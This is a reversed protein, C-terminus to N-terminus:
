SFTAFLDCHAASARLIVNIEAPSTPGGPWTAQTSGGGIIAGSADTCDASVYVARGSPVTGALTGTVKGYTSGQCGSGCAFAVASTTITARTGPEWSTVELKVDTTQARNCTDTCNAAVALTEGPALSVLPGELPLVQGNGATVSFHTKVGVAVHHAAANHLIVVPVAVLMYSGVGVKVSDVHLAQPEPDASAAATASATGTASAVSSAGPSSSAEGCAALLLVSGALLLLLRM